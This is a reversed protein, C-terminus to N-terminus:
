PLFHCLIFQRLNNIIMFKIFINGSQPEVVLLHGYGKVFEGGTAGSERWRLHCFFSWRVLFVEAFRRTLEKVGRNFLRKCCDLVGLAIDIPCLFANSALNYQHYGVGLGKPLRM